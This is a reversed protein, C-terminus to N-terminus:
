KPGTIFVTRFGAEKVMQAYKLYTRRSITSEVILFQGDEIHQKLVYTNLERLFEEM